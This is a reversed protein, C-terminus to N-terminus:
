GAKTTEGLKLGEGQIETYKVMGCYTGLGWGMGGEWGGGCGEGKQRREEECRKLGGM